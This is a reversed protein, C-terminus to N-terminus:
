AADDGRRVALMAIDDTPIRGGILEHMVTRCVAEPYDAVTVTELRRLSVDLSEERREVLGDTYFLLVAGTPLRVTTTTRRVGAMIGLPPGVDLKVLEAEQDPRACLPPPHGAACLEFDDFPAAARGCIVTVMTGFEFHHIKRDVLELVEAPGGGQLAYARLASRVRGMIVAADLGHGAVDGTVVWLHGSPVTFADYWDGGILRNEAPIYRAALQLGACRPLKSPMLSRELLMAAAAEVALRRALTAGAVREAAVQLLEADDVTFPRGDLRGVHLVGMVDDNSLLPVGLMTRIGKEWLIPNAVTTADVRDLMVPQRREAIVGAFGKGVPVRVGQRVEEELGRAAAAVLQQSDRDILLVAATDADLVTRVRDLLEGLLDEVGLRALASDTVSLMNRLREAMEVDAV